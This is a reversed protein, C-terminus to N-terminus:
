EHLTIAEMYEGQDPSILKTKKKVGKTEGKLGLGKNLPLPNIQTLLSASDLRAPPSM